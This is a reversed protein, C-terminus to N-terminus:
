GDAPTSSAPLSSYPPPLQPPVDGRVHLGMNSLAASISAHPDTKSYVPPPRRHQVSNRPIRRHDVTVTYDTSSASSVYISYIVSEQSPLSPPRPNSRRAPTRARQLAEPSARDQIRRSHIAMENLMNSPSATRTPPNSQDPSDMVQVM